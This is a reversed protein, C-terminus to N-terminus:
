MASRQEELGPDTADLASIVEALPLCLVERSVADLIDEPGMLHFTRHIHEIRDGPQLAVAPSSSEM